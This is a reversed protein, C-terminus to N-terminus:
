NIRYIRERGKERKRESERFRLPADFTAIKIARHKIAFRVKLVRSWSELFKAARLKEGITLEAACEFGTACSERYRLKVAFSMVDDLKARRSTEM